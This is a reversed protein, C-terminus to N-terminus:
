PHISSRYVFNGNKVELIVADKIPDRRSDFRIRGSVVEVDSAQLADRIARRDASGARRAADLVLWAADYALCAHSDPDEGYKYRFRKVFGQAIPRPDDKAFHATFCCGEVAPGCLLPLRPSDWGDGGALPGRFGLERAQKVALAVDRYYDPLYILDPRTAIIRALQVKFDTAGSGHGEFATVQGGMALFRRRFVEALGSPYENDLDFLCAAKRAKLHEVAFRAAATAQFADLFCARFIHDGAETVKPHTSTPTIMPVRAEQCIPAGALSVRSTGSGVVAAVKDRHILRAFAAAGEVPDDQDDEFYLIIKRGLVGGRLNWEEVAMAMGKRYSLGFSAAEGTAPGVGGLRFTRGSRNCSLSALVTMLALPLVSARLTM